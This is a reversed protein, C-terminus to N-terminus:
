LSRCLTARYLSCCSDCHASTHLAQQSISMKTPVLVSTTRFKISQRQWLYSLAKIQATLMNVSHKKGSRVSLLVAFRSVTSLQKEPILSACTFRGPKMLTIVNQVSVTGLNLIFAFSLEADVIYKHWAISLNTFVVTCSGAQRHMDLPKPQKTIHHHDFLHFLHHQIQQAEKIFLFM